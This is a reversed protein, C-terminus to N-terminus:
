PGDRLDAEAAVGVLGPILDGDGLGRRDLQEVHQPPALPPAEELAVVRQRQGLLRVPMALEDDRVVHGHSGREPLPSLGGACIAGGSSAGADLADADVSEPGLPARAVDPGEVAGDQGHRHAGSTM